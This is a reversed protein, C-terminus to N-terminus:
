GAHVAQPDILNLLAVQYITFFWHGRGTLTRKDDGQGITKSSLPRQNLHQRPRALHALGRTHPLQQRLPGPRVMVGIGIIHQHAVATPQQLVPLLRQQQAITSQQYSFQGPTRLVLTTSM